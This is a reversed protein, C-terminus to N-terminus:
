KNKIMVWILECDEEGINMCNHEEGAPIYSYDGAKIVTDESRTSVSLCGKVIYSYEDSGHVGFSDMPVKAGREIIAKGMQVTNGDEKLEHFVNLMQYGEYKVPVIKKECLIQM